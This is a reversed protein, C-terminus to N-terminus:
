RNEIQEIIKDSATGDEFEHYKEHWRVMKEKFESGIEVGYKKISKILDKTEMSLPGPIEKLYDFYFGRLENKYKELDYAYFYMPRNLISYDFMVSSYDTIMADAILYLRSIEGTANVPYVFGEFGTWDIKDGVLYHYKVVIVYEDKLEDMLMKFDLKPKFLYIGKSIYEDDRWTPAYLLVKKDLPINLERKIAEIDQPNNKKFLVDNRPYGIKLMEKDFAFCRRFINASFENQAVLCDWTSSNEVFKKKYIEIDTSGSMNVSEMDLALKKLPTGHWIQIYKQNKKKKIFAPQRADFIWTGAVSMYYFYKFWGYRVVKANGPFDKEIKEKYLFWVCRYKKDLGLEMMREYVARPSGTYNSGNSSDFVVINNNVPMIPLLIHYIKIVLKKGFKQM